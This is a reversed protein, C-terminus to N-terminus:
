TLREDSVFRLEGNRMEVGVGTEERAASEGGVASERINRILLIINTLLHYLM